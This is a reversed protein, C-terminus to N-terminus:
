ALVKPVLKSKTATSAKWLGRQDVKAGVTKRSWIRQVTEEKAAVTSVVEERGKIWKLLEMLENVEVPGHEM